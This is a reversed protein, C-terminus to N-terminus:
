LCLTKGNISRWATARLFPFHLAVQRFLSFLTGSCQMGVYQVYQHFVRCSEGFGWVDGSWLPEQKSWQVQGVKNRNKQPPGAQGWSSPCFGLATGQGPRVNSYQPSKGDFIATQRPLYLDYLMWVYNAPRRVNSMFPMSKNQYLLSLTALKPRSLSLSLGLTSVTHLRWWLLSLVHLIFFVHMQGHDITNLWTKWEVHQSGCALSYPSMKAVHGLTIKVSVRIHCDMCAHRNKGLIHHFLLMSHFLITFIYYVQVIVYPLSM